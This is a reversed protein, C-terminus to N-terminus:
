IFYTCTLGYPSILMKGVTPLYLTIFAKLFALTLRDPLAGSIYYDVKSLAMRFSDDCVHVFIYSFVNVKAIYSCSFFIGETM